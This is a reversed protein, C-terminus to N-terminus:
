RRRHRQAYARCAAHAASDAYARAKAATDEDSCRRPGPRHLDAADNLGFRHAWIIERQWDELEVTSGDKLMMPTRLTAGDPLVDDEIPNGQRDFKLHKTM